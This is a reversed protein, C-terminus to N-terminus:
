AARRVLELTGAVYDAVATAVAVNVGSVRLSPSLYADADRANAASHIRSFALMHKRGEIILLAGEVYVAPHAAPPKGHLAHVLFRALESAVGPANHDMRMQHASVYRVEGDVLVPYGRAVSPSTSILLAQQALTAGDSEVLVRVGYGIDATPNLRLFPCPYFSPAALKM